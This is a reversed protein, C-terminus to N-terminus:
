LVHVIAHKEGMDIEAAGTIAELLFLESRHDPIQSLSDPEVRFIRAIVLEASDRVIAHFVVVARDYVKVISNSEIGVVCISVNTATTGPELFRVALICDNM